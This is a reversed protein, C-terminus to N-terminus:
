ADQTGVKAYAAPSKILLGERAQALAPLLRFAPYTLTIKDTHAGIGEVVEVTDLVADMVRQSDGDTTWQLNGRVAGAEVDTGDDFNVPGHLIGDWGDRRRSVEIIVQLQCLVGRHGPGDGRRVPAQRSWGPRRSLAASVGWPRARGTGSTHPRYDRGAAAGDRVVCAPQDGGRLRPGPCEGATTAHLRRADVGGCPAETQRLYRQLEPLCLNLRLALHGEKTLNYHQGRQIRGTEALTALHELLLDAATRTSGDPACLQELVPALMVRLDLGAPRTLGLADGFDLCQGLGFVVVLLNDHVRGPLVRDSLAEQM